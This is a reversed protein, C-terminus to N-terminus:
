ESGGRSPRPLKSATAHSPKQYREWRKFSIYEVDEHEYLVVNTMKEVIGDRWKMVTKPSLSDNPYIAGVLSAPSACLRGEDDAITVIGVFLLREDRTLKAIGPDSWMAPDVFRKRM